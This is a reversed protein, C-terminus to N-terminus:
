RRARWRVVDPVQRRSLKPDRAQQVFIDLASALIGDVDVLREFAAADASDVAKGTQVVCQRAAAATGAAQSPAALGFCLTLLFLCLLVTPM